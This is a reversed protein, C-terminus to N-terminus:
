FQFYIFEQNGFISFLTISLGFFLYVLWRFPTSLTGVVHEFQSKRILYEVTVLIALFVISLLFENKLEAGFSFVGLQAKNLDTMNGIIQVADSINDARFFVWALCVLLFTTLQHTLRTFPNDLNHLAKVLTSRGILKDRQIAFVLYGGHIAGWVVFTWNAGHWLGSILFTIFLNFFWRSERVRNGGLPVYVYDRFWTSLSIHWRSWFERINKSFYPIKFNTMLDFGLTRALGIAIDSYGSFDCYIQFAFFVTAIILQFGLFGEHNGYVEDVILALRDAIVMKKFFGWLMLRMGSVVRDYNFVVKNNFQPLLNISREIPGAVLQPFFSVFLAFKGFHYEPKQGGKFIDITYSLTQFTYFSIGVPLILDVNVIKLDDVNFVGLIENITDIFFNSYKFTFLLGLNTSLSLLLLLFKNRNLKTKGIGIGTFYDIVTSFLILIAYEPKWSMYFYYSCILLFLWRFRHSIAYYTFLVVPFFIFFEISNFLM